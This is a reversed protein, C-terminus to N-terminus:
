DAIGRLKKVAAAYTLRDANPVYWRALWEHDDTNIWPPVLRWIFRVPDRLLEEYAEEGVLVVPFELRILAAYDPKIERDLIVAIFGVFWASEDRFWRNKSRSKM